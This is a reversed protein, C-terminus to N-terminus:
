VAEVTLECGQIPVILRLLISKQNKKRRGRGSSSDNHCDIRRHWPREKVRQICPVLVPSVHRYKTRAWAQIKRVVGRVQHKLLDLIFQGRKKLHVRQDHVRKPTASLRICAAGRDTVSLPLLSVNDNYDSSERADPGHYTECGLYTLITLIFVSIANRSIRERWAEWGRRGAEPM